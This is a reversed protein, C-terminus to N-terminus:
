IANLKQSLNNTLPLMQSSFQKLSGSTISRKSLVHSSLSRLRRALRCVSAKVHCIEIENDSSKLSNESFLAKRNNKEGWLNRKRSFLLNNEELATLHHSHSPAM